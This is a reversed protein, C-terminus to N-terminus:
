PWQRVYIVYVNLLMELFALQVYKQILFPLEPYCSLELCDRLTAGPTWGKIKKMSDNGENEPTFPANGM